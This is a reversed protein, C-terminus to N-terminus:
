VQASSIYFWKSVSPDVPAPPKRSDAPISTYAPDDRRVFGPSNQITINRISLDYSPTRAPSEGTILRRWSEHCEHIIETAYKKNKAEGSFAFTNEPKGDPIKYIRFWENTARILGPLHREVDEIDNLKSALPDQVDVVIVKWDTEGEDLLAMIGLVKVQKVQGVYGVQEGIECVDLPDNDGKAKTEAHSQTPDEWTQPFAGYNWIYGHHPFCNRVYRLRGKKIDQKIPNFAEEKSIEMKANTWRPVEVIMNFIGNNQDAFLPIDHFSSVVSGNQEIFVRHELTNAAGILRPTYEEALINQGGTKRERRTSFAGNFDLRLLLREVHRRVEGVGGDLGKGGRSLNFTTQNAMSANMLISKSADAAASFPQQSISLSLQEFFSDLANQLTENIEAVVLWREKVMAGVGEDGGRISGEFLLAPLVDGGWREVQAVFRECIDLILRIVSTLAPNTLLCGTLLRDLYTTHIARLTTFDLHSSSSNSASSGSAPLKVTSQLDSSSLPITTERAPLSDHAKQSLIGKLKRFEVDVVDMMIYSLLTDLFWEMDRVIGWGCRLSRSRLELDEATGGEGLGTWRRRARQANSLSTWCGHVRTHTKRLASLYSFLNAYASLDASHLFLDLPWTVSYTLALQTGLLHSSFLQPDITGPAAHSTPSSTPAAASALSPLLPRLPGSPLSFRLHALAPDHQATTGLSARLLALNLDQERIMSTPGSRITLRSVKLREIERIVSLSFEGNRLLFYNALSEVADEVDKQTLVNLWLWESVNTRIQSVVLDFAHQDEPLVTELLTTHESTLSRPLQKQWKAAKVTGIARGVYAISDRSQASVCSPISGGLIAYQESALPDVQSVTGHVLFATLQTRWVSQVAVSLRSLIDAVRHVGTHSRTLLLDILPGPRWHKESELEDVLSALATLPADWESFTARISSLPVFSGSAVLSADRRLVKAETEVVLAEYENRLIHNLTACLACISRSTSQSLRNCAGKIKRYRFAILGLSELCQQEGPHLLPAFSPHLTHDVPFLSSSHGALVLLVEAIM